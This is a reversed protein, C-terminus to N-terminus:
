EYKKLLFNRGKLTIEYMRAGKVKIREDELISGLIDNEYKKFDITTGAAYVKLRERIHMKIDMKNMTVRKGAHKGDTVIENPINFGATYGEDPELAEYIDVVTRRIAEGLINDGSMRYKKQLAALEHRSSNEGLVRLMLSRIYKITNERYADPNQEWLLSDDFVFDKGLGMHLVRNIIEDGAGDFIGSHTSTMALFKLPLSPRGRHNITIEITDTLSKFELGPVHDIDDILLLGVRGLEDAQENGWGKTGEMGQKFTISNVSFFNMQRFVESKGKNSSGTLLLKNRKDEKFKISLMIIRILDELKGSFIKDNYERVIEMDYDDNNAWNDTPNTRAVLIVERREMDIDVRYETPQLFDVEYKVSHIVTLERAFDTRSQEAKEWHMRAGAASLGSLLKKRQVRDDYVLVYYKDGLMYVHIKEPVIDVDIKKAASEDKPIPKKKRKFSSARIPEKSM